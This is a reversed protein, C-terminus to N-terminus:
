LLQQGLACEKEKVLWEFLNVIKMEHIGWSYLAPEIRFNQSLQCLLSYYMCHIINTHITQSLTSVCM